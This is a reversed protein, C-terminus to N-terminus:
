LTGLKSNRTELQLESGPVRFEFSNEEAGEAGRRHTKNYARLSRFPYRRHCRRPFFMEPPQPSTGMGSPLPFRPRTMEARWGGLRELYTELKLVQADQDFRQRARRRGADGMERRIEPASLLRLLAKTLAEEDGSPTLLGTEGHAVLEPVGGADTAVVPRGMAMAELVANPLGEMLSAHAFLDSAGLVEPVDERFGAFRVRDAIGLEASLAKLATLEEGEGVVVLMPNDIRQAIGPLAQSARAFARLLLPYNKVPTLRGVAAVLLTEEPIGLERRVETRRLCRAPDLATTDVGNHLVEVREPAIEPFRSLVQRKLFASNVLTGRVVDEMGYGLHATSLGAWPAAGMRLLVAGRGVKRILGSLLAAETRNGMLTCLVADVAHARLFAEAQWLLHACFAPEFFYDFHAIGHRRARSETWSGSPCAFAV